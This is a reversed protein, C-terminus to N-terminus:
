PNSNDTRLINWIIIILILWVLIFYMFIAPLGGLRAQDDILGLIPFNFFLFFFAFLAVLKGKLNQKKQKFDKEM